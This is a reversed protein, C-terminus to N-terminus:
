SKTPTNNNNEYEIEEEEEDEDEDEEDEEEDEDEEIEEDTDKPEQDADLLYHYQYDDEIGDDLTTMKLPTLCLSALAKVIFPCDPRLKKHEEFPHDKENWLHLEM